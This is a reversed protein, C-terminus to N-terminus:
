RESETDFSIEPSLRLLGDGVRYRPVDFGAAGVLRDLTAGNANLVGVNVLYTGPGLPIQPFTLTIEHRGGTNPLTAGTDGVRFAFLQIGLTTDIAFELDWSRRPKLVDVTITAILGPEGGHETLHTTVGRIAYDSGDGDKSADHTGRERAEYQARLVQLGKAPDGDHVLRGDELVAVRDCLRGVQEAIHSVLLISRGERQFDTIKEICKRQYPEDGVALVEDVLLLDPDSHVAVAFALRVFMGSSYFKVQTDIFDKVGSFEVM